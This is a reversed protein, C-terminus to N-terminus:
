SAPVAVEVATGAGPASRLQWEAGLQQARERMGRIGFHSYPIQQLDFGKGDDCLLLRVHRPEFRLSVELVSAGSHVLANTIAERAIRLLETEVRPSLKRPDGDVAVRTTIAHGESLEQVLTTVARGLDGEVPDHARLELICQRAEALVADLRTLARDVRTKAAAPSDLIQQSAVELQLSIGTVGQMLTDHVERAIRTREALVLEYRRQIYALRLRYLSIAAGAILAAALAITLLLFWSTQYYRPAIRVPLLAEDLSPGGNEHVAVRFTFEGPPLNTYFATRRSGADVWDEDYGELRYRFRLREAAALRIATFQIELDNAGAPVQIANETLSLALKGAFANEVLVHPKSTPIAAAQPHFGVMGQVTPFWLRGDRTKAASPQAHGSCDASRMGDSADFSIPRLERSQGHQFRHLQQRDLRSVGRPSSLWLHGYDDEVAGLINDSLLGDRRTFFHFKGHHFRSLGGRTGIWLGGESSLALTTIFNNALGDASTYRRWQDHNLHLLGEGTGIWLTGDPAELIGRFEDEESSLPTLVRTFRPNPASIQMRYLGAATGAWVHGQRTEVVARVLVEPLGDAAGYRRIRGEQWCYLGREEGFWLRGTPGQGISRLNDKASDGSLMALSVTGNRILNLGLATGAWLRGRADELLTRVHDHALGDSTTLTTVRRERLRVLGGRTGVWLNGDRDEHLSRVFNHPLGTSTDLVSFRGDRFRALGGSETGIWLNGHRDELMARISNSPLGDRRTYSRYRGDSHLHLGGNRTGIWLRGARDEYLMRIQNNGLGPPGPISELRNNALRLLGEEDTGIWLRGARDVLATRLSDTTLGHSKNLTQFRQDAYRALGGEHATLLIQGSPDEYINRIYNNPLGNATTFSRTFARGDYWTVGGGSTGIWLTGDRAANLAVISNHKLNPTNRTDFHTFRHGDFRALGEQTGLWLYGNPTQAMAQIFSDPLGQATTWVTSHYQTIPTRPDLALAPVTPFFTLLFLLLVRM